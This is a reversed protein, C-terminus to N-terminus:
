DRSAPHIAIGTAAFDAGTCLIPLDMRRAMAYVMLDLLNLRGGRRNGAGHEINASAALDADAATFPEVLLQTLIQALMAEAEPAERAGRRTAVRRFEVLVPAPVFGGGAIANGLELHRPEEHLIAILASTDVIM